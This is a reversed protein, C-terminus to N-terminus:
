LWKAWKIAKWWSHWCGRQEPSRIARTSDEIIRLHKLVVAADMHEMAALPTSVRFAADAISLNAPVIAHFPSYAVVSHSPLVSANHKGRAVIAWSIARLM